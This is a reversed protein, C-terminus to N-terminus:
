IDVFARLFSMRNMNLFNKQLKMHKPSVKKLSFTKNEM